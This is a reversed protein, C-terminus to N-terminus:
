LAVDDGGVAPGVHRGVHHEIRDMGPREPELAAGGPSQGAPLPALSEPSRDARVWCRPRKFGLFPLVINMMMKPERRIRFCSPTTKIIDATDAVTHV